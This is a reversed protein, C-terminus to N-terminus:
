SGRRFAWLVPMGSLLQVSRSGPGDAPYPSGKQGAYGFPESLLARQGRACASRRLSGTKELTTRIDKGLRLSLERLGENFAQVMAEATSDKSPVEIRYRREMIYKTAAVPVGFDVLAAQVEILATPKGAIRVGRLDLVKGELAYRYPESNFQGV